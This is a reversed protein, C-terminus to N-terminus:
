LRQPILALPRGQLGPFGAVGDKPPLIDAHCPEVSGKAARSEACLPVFPALMKVVVIVPLIDAVVADVKVAQAFLPGDSQGLGKGKVVQFALAPQHGTGKVM